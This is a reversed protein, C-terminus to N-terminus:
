LIEKGTTARCLTSYKIGKLSEMLNYLKKVKEVKGSVIVVEFCNDEDLHIHQTSIILHHFHHQIDMIKDALERKHHNYVIIIAGAIKEGKKWEEEVLKKRILDRIAESRTKYGEKKIYIDFKKLLHNEMSIGFRMLEGMFGGIESSQCSDVIKLM